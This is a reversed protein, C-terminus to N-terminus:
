KPANNGVEEREGHNQGMKILSVFIRGIVMISIFLLILIVGTDLTSNELGM